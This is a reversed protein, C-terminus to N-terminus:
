YLEEEDGSLLSFLLPAGVGAGLLSYMPTNGRIYGRLVEDQPKGTVRSTRWIMENIREIAPKAPSTRQGKAADNMMKLGAWVVDQTNGLKQPQAKELDMVMKEVVPYEVSTPAAKVAPGPDGGKARIAAREKQQAATLAEEPVHLAGMMQEDITKPDLHGLFNASFNHRKPEGRVDMGKGAGVTTEFKKVNGGVYRGGVPYPLDYSAISRDRNTPFSLGKEKYFNGMAATLLNAEPDAGGTTAAMADAVREKFAKRGAVPGLEAVFREELQGLAYWDIANPDTKGLDYADQLRKRNEPTDYIEQARQKGARSKANERVGGRTQTNHPLPYNAPDPYFRKSKDFYPEWNGSEIEEQALKRRREVQAAEDSQSKAAYHQNGKPKKPDFGSYPVATEPYRQSAWPLPDLPFPQAEARPSNWINSKDAASPFDKKPTTKGGKISKLTTMGPVFPLLGLGTLAFNGATREEPENKYRNIDAILGAIDGVIPIPTTSAAAVDLVGQPTVERNLEGGPLADRVYQKALGLLEYLNM